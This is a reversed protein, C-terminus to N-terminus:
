GHHYLRAFVGFYALIGLVLGILVVVKKTAADDIVLVLCWLIFWILLVIEM